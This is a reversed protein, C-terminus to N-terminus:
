AFVIRKEYEDGMMLTTPDALDIFLIGNLHDTEHQVVHAPFSNLIEEHEKAQEDLYRICIKKYRPVKGYIVNKAAPGGVSMCGEWREVPEGFKEIIETNIMVREFPKTNPHSEKPAIVIVSIALSEGVQPASLGVGYDKNGCAGKMDAILEQTQPSVIEDKTLRQAKMRLVPDGIRRLKLTRM